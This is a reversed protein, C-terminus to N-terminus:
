AGPVGTGASRHAHSRPAPFERTILKIGLCGGVSGRTGIAVGCRYVASRVLRRGIRSSSINRKRDARATRPIHVPRIPQRIRQIGAHGGIRFERRRPSGPATRRHCSQRVASAQTGHLELEPALQKSLVPAHSLVMTAVTGSEFEIAVNAYDPTSGQRLLPSDESNHAGGWALAEGLDIAGMDPKEPTIPRAHAWCANRRNVWRGACRMTPTRASM